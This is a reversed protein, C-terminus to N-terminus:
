KKYSDAREKVSPFFEMFYGQYITGPYLNPFLVKGNKDKVETSKTPIVAGKKEDVTFSALAKDKSILVIKNGRKATTYYEKYKKALAIIIKFREKAAEPGPLVFQAKEKVTQKDSSEFSLKNSLSM